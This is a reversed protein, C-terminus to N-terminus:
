TVCFVSRLGEIMRAVRPDAIRYHITTGARRTAVVADRRLLKLHQSTASQSLGVRDSLESVTVEGDGLMHCLLLLRRQNAILRLMASVPEAQERLSAVESSATDGPGPAPAAARPAAQATTSM